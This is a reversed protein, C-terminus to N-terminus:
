LSQKNSLHNLQRCIYHFTSHRLFIIISVIVTTFIAFRRLSVCFVAIFASCFAQPHNSLIGM